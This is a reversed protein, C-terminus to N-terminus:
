GVVDSVYNVNSLLGDFVSKGPGGGPRRLGESMQKEQRQGPVYASNDEDKSKSTAERSAGEGEEEKEQKTGFEGAEEELSEVNSSEGEEDTSEEFVPKTQADIGLIAMDDSVHTKRVERHLGQMTRVEPRSLEQWYRLLMDRGVMLFELLDDRNNMQMTVESLLGALKLKPEMTEERHANGKDNILPCREIAKQLFSLNESISSAPSSEHRGAGLATTQMVPEVSLRHEKTVELPAGSHEDALASDLIKCLENSMFDHRKEMARSHGQMVLWICLPLAAQFEWVASESFGEPLMDKSSIGRTMLEIANLIIHENKIPLRRKKCDICVFFRQYAQRFQSTAPYILPACRWQPFQPSPEQHGRSALLNADGIPVTHAFDDDIAHPASGMIEPAGAGQNLDPLNRSFTTSSYSFKEPNKSVDLSTQDGAATSAYQKTDSTFEMSEIEAAEAYGAISNALSEDSSPLPKYEERSTTAILHPPLPDLNMSGKEHEQQFSSGLSNDAQAAPGSVTASAAVPLKLTQYHARKMSKRWSQLKTQRRRSSSMSRAPRGRHQENNYM